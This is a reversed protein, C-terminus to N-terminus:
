LISITLTNVRIIVVYDTPIALRYYAHSVIFLNHTQIRSVDSIYNRDHAREGPKPFFECRRENVPDKVYHQSMFYQDIDKASRSKDTIVSIIPNFVIGSMRSVFLACVCM